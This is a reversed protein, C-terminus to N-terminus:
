TTMYERGAMLFNSLFIMARCLVMHPKGFHIDFTTVCNSCSMNPVSANENCFAYMVHIPSGSTFARFSLPISPLIYLPNICWM